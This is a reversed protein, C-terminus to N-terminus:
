VIKKKEKGSTVKQRLKSSICYSEIVALLKADDGHQRLEQERSLYADTRPTLKPQEVILKSYSVM